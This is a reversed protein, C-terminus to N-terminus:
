RGVRLEDCSEFSNGADSRNWILIECYFVHFCHCYIWISRNCLFFFSYSFFSVQLLNMLTEMTATKDPGIEYSRIIFTQRYVFRGDVFRGMLSAATEARGHIVVKKLTATTEAETAVPIGNVKRGNITELRQPNNKKKGSAVVALKLRRNARVFKCSSSSCLGLEYMGPFDRHFSLGAANGASSAAAAM